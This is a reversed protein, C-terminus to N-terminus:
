VLGAVGRSIYLSWLAAVFGGRGFWALFMEDSRIFCGENM